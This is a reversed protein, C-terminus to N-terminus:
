RKSTLGGDVRLVQGTIWTSNDSLLFVIMQAIDDPRGERGLPVADVMRRQYELDIKADARMGTAVPGPSVVNARVGSAAVSQAIGKTLSVVAGKSAAYLANATTPHEYALSGINVISGRGADVMQKAAERSMFFTGKLNVSLLFDLDETTAEVFPSSRYVGATNVVGTVSGHNEKVKEFFAVVAEEDGINLKEYIFNSNKLQPADDRIDVGIVFAGRNTLETSIVEGIGGAAGTVVVVSGALDSM